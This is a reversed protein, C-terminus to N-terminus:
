EVMEEDSDEIDEEDDLENEEFTEEEQTKNEESMVDIIVTRSVQYKIAKNYLSTIYKPWETFLDQKQPEYKKEQLTDVRINSIKEYDIGKIDIVEGKDMIVDTAKHTHFLYFADVLTQHLRQMQTLNLNMEHQKRIAFNSLLLLRENKIKIKNWKNQLFVLKNQSEIQEIKKEEEQTDKASFSMSYTSILNKIDQACKELPVNIYKYMTMQQKKNCWINQDDISFKKPAHGYALDKFQHYWYENDMFQKACEMMKPYKVEKRSRKSSTTIYEIQSSM